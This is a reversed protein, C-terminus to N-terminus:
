KPPHDVPNGEGASSVPPGSLSPPPWPSPASPAKGRRAMNRWLGTLWRLFSGRTRGPLPVAPATAQPQEMTVAPTGKGSEGDLMALVGACWGAVRGLRYSADAGAFHEGAWGMAATLYAEAGQRALLYAPVPESFAYSMAVLQDQAVLDKDEGEVAPFFAKILQLASYTAPPNAFLVVGEVRISRVMALADLAAPDGGSQRVAAQAKMAADLRALEAASPM